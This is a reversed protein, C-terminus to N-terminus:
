HVTGSFFCASHSLFHSQLYEVSTEPNTKSIRSFDFNMALTFGYFHTISRAFVLALFPSGYVIHSKKNIGWLSELESWSIGCAIVEVRTKEM